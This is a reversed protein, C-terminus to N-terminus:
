FKKCERTKNNWCENCAKFNSNTINNIKVNIEQPASNMELSEYSNESQWLIQCTDMDILTEFELESGYSLVSVVNHLKFKRLEESRIEHPIEKFCTKTGKSINIGNGGLWINYEGIQYETFEADEIKDWKKKVNKFDLKKEYDICELKYGAPMLEPKLIMEAKKSPYSHEEAIHGDLVDRFKQSAYLEVAEKLELESLRDFHIDVYAAGPRQGCSNINLHKEIKGDCNYPEVLKNFIKVFKQCDEDKKTESCNFSAEELTKCDEEMCFKPPSKQISNEKNFCSTLVLIILLNLILKKM